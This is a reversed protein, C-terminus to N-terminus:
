HVRQADGSDGEGEDEALCTIVRAFTAPDLGTRLRELMVGLAKEEAKRVTVSAGYKDPYRRELLWSAARWGQAPDLTGIQVADILKKEGTAKALVVAEFFESYLDIGQEGLQMWGYFTAQSIGSLEAATSQPLGDELAEKIDRLIRERRKKNALLSPRSM